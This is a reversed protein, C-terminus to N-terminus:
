PLWSAILGVTFLSCYRHVVGCWSERFEPCDAPQGGAVDLAARTLVEGVLGAPRVRIVLRERVPRVLLRACLGGRASKNTTPVALPDADDALNRLVKVLTRDTSAISSGLKPEEKKKM